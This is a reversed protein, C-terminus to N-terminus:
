MMITANLNFIAKQFRPDLMADAVVVSSHREVVHNLISRSIPDGLASPIRSLRTEGTNHQGQRNVQRQVRYELKGDASLLVIYGLEAGVLIMVEEIVYVLLEDLTQM